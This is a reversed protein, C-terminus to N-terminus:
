AVGDQADGMRVEPPQALALHLGVRGQRWRVWLLTLL